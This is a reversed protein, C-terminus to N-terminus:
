GQYPNAERIHNKRPHPPPPNMKVMGDVGKVNRPSRDLTIKLQFVTSMM